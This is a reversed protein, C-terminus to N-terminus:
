SAEAPLENMVHLDVAEFSRKILREAVWSKTAARLM